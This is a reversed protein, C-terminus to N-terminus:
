ASHEPRMTTVHHSSMAQLYGLSKSMGALVAHFHLLPFLITSGQCLVVTLLSDSDASTESEVAQPSQNHYETLVEHSCIMCCYMMCFWLCLPHMHVWDNMWENMKNWACEAWTVSMQAQPGIVRLLISACVVLTLPKSGLRSKTTRDSSSSTDRSLAAKSTHLCQLQSHAYWSGMHLAGWMAKLLIWQTLSVSVWARYPLYRRTFAAM